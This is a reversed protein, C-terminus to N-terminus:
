LVVGKVWEVPEKAPKGIFYGQAFDMGISECYELEEKREVGEGLVNIGMEKSIHVAQKLFQQNATNQDCYSIYNRDIKVYDPELKSLIGLTAFGSGVDDLAVKMGSAKYTKFINKLHDIDTIEETEM